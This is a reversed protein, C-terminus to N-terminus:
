GKRRINRKDLREVTQKLGINKWHAQEKGGNREEVKSCWGRVTCNKLHVGVCKPLGSLQSVELLCPVRVQAEIEGLM